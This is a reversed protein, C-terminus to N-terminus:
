PNKYFKYYNKLSNICYERSSTILYFQVLDLDLIIVHHIRDYFRVFPNNPLIRWFFICLQCLYYKKTRKNKIKDNSM